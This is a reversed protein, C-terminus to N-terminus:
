EIGMDKETGVYWSIIESYSEYLSHEEGFTEKERIKNLMQGAGCMFHTENIRWCQHEGYYIEYYLICKGKQKYKCKWNTKKKERAKLCNELKQYTIFLNGRKETILEVGCVTSTVKIDTINTNNQLEIVSLPIKEWEECICDKDNPDLDCKTKQKWSYCCDNEFYINIFGKPREIQFYITCEETARYSECECNDRNFTCPDFRDMIVFALVVLLLLALASFIIVNLSLGQAKKM